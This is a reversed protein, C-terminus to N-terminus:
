LLGHDQTKGIMWKAMVGVEFSVSLVDDVTGPSELRRLYRLVSCDLRYNLNDVLPIATTSMLAAPRRGEM